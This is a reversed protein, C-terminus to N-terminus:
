QEGETNRLMKATDAGNMGPMMYDMFVLNYVGDRVMEVAQEGSSATEVQMHYPRFLGKALKLNVRNDDVILIRADPATFRAKCGEKEGM